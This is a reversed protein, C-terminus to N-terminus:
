LYLTLELLKALAERKQAQLGGGTHLVANQARRHFFLLVEDLKPVLILLLAVLDGFKHRSGASGAAHELRHKFKHVGIVVHRRGVELLLEEVTEVVESEEGSQVISANHQVALTGVSQHCFATLLINHHGHQIGVAEVVALQGLAQELEVAVVSLGARRKLLM